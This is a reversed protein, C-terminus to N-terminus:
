SRREIRNEFIIITYNGNALIPPRANNDQDSTGSGCQGSGPDVAEFDVTFGTGTVSGDSTFTMYVMNNVTCGPNPPATKGCYTGISTASADLGDYIKLKDFNCAEQEEIDM